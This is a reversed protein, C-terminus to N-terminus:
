PQQSLKRGHSAWAANFERAGDIVDGSMTMAVTGNSREFEGHALWALREEVAAGGAEPLL